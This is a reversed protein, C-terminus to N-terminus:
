NGSREYEAILRAYIEDSIERKFIRNLSKKKLCTDICSKSKCVYAGRGNAKGKEDFFVEGEKTIVIRNLNTKPLMERCVVCMRYPIQKPKNIKMTM